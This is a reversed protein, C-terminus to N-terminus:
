SGGDGSGELARRREQLQRYRELATPDRAAAAILANQQQKLSDILMRNLLGRLEARLEAEDGETQAHSGSMVREALAQCDRGALAERLVAWSQPGHEHLQSELWLFLAGHPAPQERLLGHLM